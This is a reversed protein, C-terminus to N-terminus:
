KKQESARRRLELGCNEWEGGGGGRGRLFLARACVRVGLVGSLPVFGFAPLCRHFM